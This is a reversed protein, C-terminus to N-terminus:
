DFKKRQWKNKKYFDLRGNRENTKEKWFDESYGEKVSIWDNRQIPIIQFMPTGKPILGTFSRKIFLPINGIPANISKDVDVIGSLTHFPLDVRNLPHTILASFGDPLVISWPRQWVFEIDYFEDSVPVETRRKSLLPIDTEEYFSMQNNVKKIYINAWTSQIYGHTISDLFPVCRKIGSTFNIGEQKGPIKKYWEPIYNRSPTPCEVENFIAESGPIFQIKM